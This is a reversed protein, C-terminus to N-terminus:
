GGPSEDAGPAVQSIFDEVKGSASLPIDEVVRLSLAPRDQEIREQWQGRLWTEFAAPLEAAIKLLVVYSGDSQQRIQYQRLNANLAAPMSELAAKLVFVQLSTGDPAQAMRRYRGSISGFSPLTRGCPCIGETVEALDGSEYRILPMALNRLATIVLRGTEGPKCDQGEADLIEVLCHESHVHYRGARCRLAVKGIENLGYNQDIPVGFNGETRRRMVATMQESIAYIGRIGIDRAGPGLEFALRELTSPYAMLFDPRVERLWAVQRALPNTVCLGVYDGSEFYQGVYRWRNMRFSSGVPRREGEEAPPFQTAIRIDARLRLPDWRFWRLQRQELLNFMNNSASTHLVQTTRGTTGSSSFWAYTREGKPLATACLAKRNEQVQVKGLLPLRSLCELARDHDPNVGNEAFIRSYYPVRAAAFRMVRLLGSELVQGNEEPDRFENELLKDFVELGAYQPLLRWRGQEERERELSTAIDTV